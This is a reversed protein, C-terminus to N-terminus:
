SVAKTKALESFSTLTGQLTKAIDNGIVLRFFPSLWGSFKVHHSIKGAEYRHEFDLHCLPLFSRDIFGQLPEVKLLQFTVKPGGKPKLTGRSGVEFAGDLTVTELGEDWLPWEKPNSWLQWVQAASAETPLSRSISFQFM